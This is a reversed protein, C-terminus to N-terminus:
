SISSAAVSENNLTICLWGDCAPGSSGPTQEAGCDFVGGVASLPKLVAKADSDAENLKGTVQPLVDYLSSFPVHWVKAGGHVVHQAWQSYPLPTEFTIAARSVDDLSVNSASAPPVAIRYRVCHRDRWRLFYRQQQLHLHHDRLLDNTVILATPHRVAAYLWCLDDNLEEPAVVVKPYGRQQWLQLMARNRKTMQRIRRAHYVVIPVLPGRAFSGIGFPLARLLNDVMEFSPPVDVFRHGLAEQRTMVEALDFQWEPMEAVQQQSLGSELLHEVKAKRYWSHVGYFGVNAGDIFILQSEHATTSVQAFVEELAERFHAFTSRRHAAEAEEDTEGADGHRPRKRFVTLDQEIGHLLADRDSASLDYGHLGLKCVDCTPPPSAVKTRVGGMVMLADMSRKGVIPQYVSLTSLVRDVAGAVLAASLSARHRAICELLVTFDEDLLEVCRLTANDMFELLASVVRAPDSEAWQSVCVFIPAFMRRKADGLQAVGSELLHHLASLREGLAAASVQGQDGCILRTKLTFMSEDMRVYDNLQEVLHLGAAYCKERVCMHMVECICGSNISVGEKVGELFTALANELRGAKDNALKRVTDMLSSTRRRQLKLRRTKEDAEQRRRKADQEEASM